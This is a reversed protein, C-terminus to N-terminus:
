GTWVSPMVSMSGINQRYPMNVFDMLLIGFTRLTVEPEYLDVCPLRFVWSQGACFRYVADTRHLDVTMWRLCALALMYSIHPSVFVTKWLVM